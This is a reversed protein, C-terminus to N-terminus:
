FLRNGVTVYRSLKLGETVSKRYIRMRAVHGLHDACEKALITHALARESYPNISGAEPEGMSLLSM